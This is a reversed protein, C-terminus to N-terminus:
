IERLELLLVISHVQVSPTPFQMEEHYPNWDNTGNTSMNNAMMPRQMNPHAQQQFGNM